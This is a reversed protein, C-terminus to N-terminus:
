KYLDGTVVILVANNIANMVIEGAALYLFSITFTESSLYVNSFVSPAIL